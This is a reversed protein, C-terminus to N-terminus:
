GQSTLVDGDQVIPAQSERVTAQRAGVDVVDGHGRAAHPDDVRLGV